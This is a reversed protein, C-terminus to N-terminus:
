EVSDRELVVFGTKKKPTAGCLSIELVDMYARLLRFKEHDMNAYLIIFAKQEGDGLPFESKIVPPLVEVIDDEVLEKM